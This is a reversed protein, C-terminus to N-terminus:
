YRSQRKLGAVYLIIGVAIFLLFLFLLCNVNTQGFFYSVILLLAGMYVM